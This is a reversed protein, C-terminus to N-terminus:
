PAPAAAPDASIRYVAGSHDCSFLVSGDTAQVCDVPRALVEGTRGDITSVIKLMGYPEGFQDDFLIRAVCYGALETSNWSGHAAAFIDGGHVEPLGKTRANVEPDIFTFGNVAWHAGIKWAPPITLAAWELLDEREHHEYRPIRDGVLFPHGYFGGEIYHNLEDPPNLDTIPQNAENEGLKWGFYDTGHDIGWVEDTGPRLRLKETNRLGSAFLRKNGGDHDFRWIKQRETATQDSVNSADGISTYISDDTVLLSRWWHGGGRPLSGVPLIDEIEDAVFDGDTDRARHISGTTAFYLWGGHLDMGHVSPRHALFITRTEYVGDGDTDRLAVIDGPRPRSVYLTGAEDMELFRAGPLDSVAAAVKYGDRVWFRAARADADSAPSPAPAVPTPQAALLALSLIPILM